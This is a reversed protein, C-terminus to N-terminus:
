LYSHLNVTSGVESMYKKHLVLQSASVVALAAYIAASVFCARVADGQESSTMEATFQESGFLYAFGL